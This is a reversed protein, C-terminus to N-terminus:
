RHNSSGGCQSQAVRLGCCGAVHVVAAAACQPGSGQGRRGAGAAAHTCARSPVPGDALAPSCKLLLTSGAERTGGRGARSLGLSSEHRDDQEVTRVCTHERRVTQPASHLTCTPLYIAAEQEDTQMRGEQDILRQPGDRMYVICSGLIHSSRTQSSFWAPRLEGITVAATGRRASRLVFVCTCRAMAHGRCYIM